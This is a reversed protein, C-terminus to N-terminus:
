LTNCTYYGPAPIPLASLASFILLILALGHHELSNITDGLSAKESDESFVIKLIDSLKASNTVSENLAADNLADNLNSSM